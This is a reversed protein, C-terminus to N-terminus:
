TIRYNNDDLAPYVARIGNNYKSYSLQLLQKRQIIRQFWAPLTNNYKLELVVNGPYVEYLRRGGIDLSNSYTTQINSDFTVRFRSDTKSVLARRKYTIFHKPVLTNKKYFWLLERLFGIDASSDEFLRQISKDLYRELGAEYPVSVRDKVILANAKRKMEIFVNMGERATPEYFRLRLKKRKAIGSEKDFFCGFRPTDYYLSNVRYAGDPLHVSYPDWAMYTLLHPILADARAIPLYYKFEFRQFHYALKPM